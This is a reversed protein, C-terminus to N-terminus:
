GAKESPDPSLNVASKKEQLSVTHLHMLFGDSLVWLAGTFVPSLLPVTGGEFASVLTHPVWELETTDQVWRGM